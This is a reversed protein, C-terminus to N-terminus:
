FLKAPHWQIIRARCWLFPWQHIVPLWGDQGRHCQVCLPISIFWAGQYPEHVETGSESGCVICPLDAVREVHASEKRTMAPKNKSRM